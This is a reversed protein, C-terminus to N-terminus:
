VRLSAAARRSQEDLDDVLDDFVKATYRGVEVVDYTEVGVGRSVDGVDAGKKFVKPFVIEFKRRGFGLKASGAGVEQSM